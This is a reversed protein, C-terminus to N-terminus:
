KRLRLKEIERLSMGTCNAIQFDSFGVQIMKGVIRGKEEEKGKKEGKEMGEKWLEEQEIKKAFEKEYALTFLLSIDSTHEALFDTLIERQLSYETAKEIAKEMNKEEQYIELLIHQFQSYEQLTSKQQLIKPNRSYRIDIVRVLLEFPAIERKLSFADSLKLTLEETEKQGEYLPEEGDYLVICEPIPLPFRYYTYLHKVELIREYVRTVYLLFRLPLTESIRWSEEAVLICRNEALFIIDNTRLFSEEESSIIQIEEPDIMETKYFLQYLELMKEKSFFVSHFLSERNNKKCM